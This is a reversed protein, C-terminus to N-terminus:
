GRLMLVVVPGSKRLASLTIPKGDVRSLTFDRAKDGVAPLSAAAAAQRAAATYPAWGLSAVLLTGLAVSLKSAHTM